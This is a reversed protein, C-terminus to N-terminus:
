SDAANRATLRASFGLTALDGYIFFALLAIRLRTLRPYDPLTTTEDNLAFPLALLGCLPGGAAGGGGGTRLREVPGAALGELLEKVLEEPSAGRKRLFYHGAEHHSALQGTVAQLDRVRKALRVDAEAEAFIPEMIEGQELLTEILMARGILCNREGLAAEAYFKRYNYRLAALLRDPGARTGAGHWLWALALNYAHSSLFGNTIIFPWEGIIRFHTSLRHEYMAVYVFQQDAQEHAFRGAEVATHSFFRANSFTSRLLELAQELPRM